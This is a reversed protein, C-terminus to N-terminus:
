DKRLGKSGGTVVTNICKMLIHVSFCQYILATILVYTCYCIVEKFLNFLHINMNAGHPLVMLGNNNLVICLSIQTLDCCTSLPVHLLGLICFATARLYLIVLHAYSHSNLIENFSQHATFQRVINYPLISLQCLNARFLGM